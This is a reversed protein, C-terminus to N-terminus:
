LCCRGAKPHIRDSRDGPLLQQRRAVTIITFRIENREKMACIGKRSAHSLHFFTHSRPKNDQLQWVGGPRLQRQDLEGPQDNNTHSRHTANRKVHETASEEECEDKKLVVSIHPHRAAYTYLYLGPTHNRLFFTREM